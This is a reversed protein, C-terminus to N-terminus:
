VTPPNLDARPLPEMEVPRVSPSSAYETSERVTFGFPSYFRSVVLCFFPPFFSDSLPIDERPPFPITV